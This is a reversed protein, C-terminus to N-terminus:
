AGPGAALREAGPAPRRPRRGRGYIGVSPGVMARHAAHDSRTGATPKPILPVEGRLTGFHFRAAGRGETCRPADGARPTRGPGWTPRSARPGRRQHQSPRSKVESRESTFDRMPGGTHAHTFFPSTGFHLGRIFGSRTYFWLFLCGHDSHAFGVCSSRRCGVCAALVRVGVASPHTAVNIM